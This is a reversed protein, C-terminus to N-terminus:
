PQLLLCIMLWSREGPVFAAKDFPLQGDKRRKVLPLEGLHLRSRCAVFADWIRCLATAYPGRPADVACDDESCLGGRSLTV